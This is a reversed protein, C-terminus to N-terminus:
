TPPPSEAPKTSHIMAGCRPCHSDDPAARWHWNCEHCIRRHLTADGVGTGEGLAARRAKERFVLGPTALLAGAATIVAAVTLIRIAYRPIILLGVVVTLVAVTACSMLIVTRAKPSLTM